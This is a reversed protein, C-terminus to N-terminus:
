RWTSRRMRSRKIEIKRDRAVRAKKTATESEHERLAESIMQWHDETVALSKAKEFENDALARAILVRLERDYPDASASHQASRASSGAPPTAHETAAAACPRDSYVMRGDESCKYVQGLASLPVITLLVCCLAATTCCRRKSGCKRAFSM